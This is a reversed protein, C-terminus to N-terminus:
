GGIAEREREILSAVQARSSVELKSFIRSMHREITL